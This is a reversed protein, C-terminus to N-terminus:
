ATYSCDDGSELESEYRVPQQPAAASGMLESGGSSPSYNYGGEEEATVSEIESIESEFRAPPQPITDASVAEECQSETRTPLSPASDGASSVAGGNSDHTRRGSISMDYDDDDDSDHEDISGLSSVDSVIRIPPFPVADARANKSNHHGRRRQQSVSSSFTVGGGYGEADGEEEIISDLVSTAESIARIPRLPAADSTSNLTSSPYHHHHHHNPHHHHSVSSGWKESVDAPCVESAGLDSVVVEQSNRWEVVMANSTSTSASQEGTSQPQRPAGDNVAGEKNLVAPKNSSASNSAGNNPRKPLCPRMLRRFWPHQGALVQGVTTYMKRRRSFVMFNWAGQLTAFFLSARDLPVNWSGSIIYVIVSIGWPMFMFLFGAIYLMGETAVIRSGAKRQASSTSRSTQYTRGEEADDDDDDGEEEEEEIDDDEDYEVNIQGRSPQSRNTDGMTTTSGATRAAASAEKELARIKRYFWYLIILNCLFGGGSTILTFIQRYFAAGEGATCEIIESTEDYDLKELEWSETCNYPYSDMQCVPGQNHYADLPLPFVAVGICISWLVVQLIRELTRLQPEKWDYNIMLLYFVALFSNFTLAM